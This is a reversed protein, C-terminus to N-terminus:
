TCDYATLVYVFLIHVYCVFSKRIVAKETPIVLSFWLIIQFSSMSNTVSNGHKNPCGTSEWPRNGLQSLKKLPLKEFTLNPVRLRWLSCHPPRANHSPNALPGLGCSSCAPPLRQPYSLSPFNGSPFHYM